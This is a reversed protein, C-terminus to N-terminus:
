NQALQIPLEQAVPVLISSTIAEVSAGPGIPAFDAVSCIMAVVAFAAFVALALINKM